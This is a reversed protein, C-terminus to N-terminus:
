QRHIPVVITSVMSRLAPVPVSDTGADRNQFVDTDRGTDAGFTSLM